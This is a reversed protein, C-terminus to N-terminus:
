ELRIDSFLLINFPLAIGVITFRPFLIVIVKTAYELDWLPCKEGEFPFTIKM